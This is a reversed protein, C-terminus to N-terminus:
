STRLFEQSNVVNPVRPTLKFVEWLSPRADRSGSSRGESSVQSILQPFTLGSKDAPSFTLGPKCCGDEPLDAIASEIAKDIPLPSTRRYDPPTLNRFDIAAQVREFDTAGGASDKLTSMAFKSVPQYNLPECEAKNVTDDDVNFVNTGGHHIRFRNMAAKVAKQFSSGDREKNKEDKYVYLGQHIVASFMMHKADLLAEKDLNNKQEKQLVECTEKIFPVVPVGTKTKVKNVAQQVKSKKKGPVVVETFKITLRQKAVFNDKGLILAAFTPDVVDGLREGVAAPGPVRIFKCPRAAKERIPLVIM